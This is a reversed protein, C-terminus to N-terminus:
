VTENVVTEIWWPKSLIKIVPRENWAYQIQQSDNQALAVLENDRRPQFQWDNREQARTLHLHAQSSLSNIIQTDM